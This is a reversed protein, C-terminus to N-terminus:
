EFSNSNSNFPLLRFESNGVKRTPIQKLRIRILVKLLRLDSTTEDLLTIVFISKSITLPSVFVGIKLIFGM